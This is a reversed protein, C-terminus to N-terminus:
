FTFKSGVKGAPPAVTIVDGVKYGSGSTSVVATPTGNSSTTVNVTLGTGSGGTTALNNFPTGSANPVWMQAPTTQNGIAAPIGSGSSAQDDYSLLQAGSGIKINNATLSINGSSGTSTGSFGGNATHRTSLIVGANVTVTGGRLPDNITINGGNTYVNGTFTYDGTTFSLSGGAMNIPGVTVLTNGAGVVNLTESSSSLTVTLSDGSIPASPSSYNWVTNADSLTYQLPNSQSQGQILNVNLVGAGVTLVNPVSTDQYIPNEIGAFSFST